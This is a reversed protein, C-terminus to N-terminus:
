TRGSKALLYLFWPAGILASLLGASIPWPWALNRGLWDAIVMLLGGFLASLLCQSRFHYAGSYRALQPAILGIFSLPGILLTGAATLAAALLLILMNSRRLGVGLTRATAQGLSLLTVWRQLLLALPILLLAQGMAWLARQATIGTTSGTSWNLLTMARPDGSMLLLMSLAMSLNTLCLGVLVMTQPQFQSRLGFMFLLLTALVSGALAAPFLLSLPQNFIIVVLVVALSAGSSIGLLEPSALPNRSQRQILVGAVALMAGASFAGLIRPWRWQLLQWIDSNEPTRNVLLSMVIGFLLMLILLSVHSATLKRDPLNGQPAPSLQANRQRLLLVLMVPASLLGSLAGTPLDGGAPSIFQALQDVATLLLAGFLPACILQHSFRRVGSLRVLAPAALGIFGIIGVKSTVLASLAVAIALAALRIKVVSVGLTSASDDSLGILMLPRALLGSLGMLILVPLWLLQVSQWGSQSLSGAQWSFLDSLYDHNFLVLVTNVSNGYLSIVMGVLIVRLPAIGQKVVLLYLLIATLTAGMLALNTLGLVLLAPCLIVSASMALNAGAAIGLTAPEALTNRLVQQFLLGALALAMGALVSITLRPLFSYQLVLSIASPINTSKIRALNMALLTMGILLLILTILWLVYSSRPKTM